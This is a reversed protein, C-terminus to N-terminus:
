GETSRRVTSRIPYRRRGVRAHRDIIEAGDSVHPVSALVVIGLLFAHLTIAFRQVGTSRLFCCRTLRLGGMGSKLALALRTRYQSFWRADIRVLGADENFNVIVVKM